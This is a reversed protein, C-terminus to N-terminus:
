QTVLIRAACKLICVWGALTPYDGMDRLKANTDSGYKAYMTALSDWQALPITNFHEDDKYAKKLKAVGFKNKVADIYDVAFQRYYDIHTCENSLYQQRTYTTTTQNM